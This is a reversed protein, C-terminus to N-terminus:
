IFSLPDHLILHIGCVVNQMCACLASAFVSTNSEKNEESEGDMKLVRSQGPRFHEITMSKEYM